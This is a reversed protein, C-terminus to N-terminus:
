RDQTPKRERQSHFIPTNYWIETRYTGISPTSTGRKKPDDNTQVNRFRKSGLYTRFSETFMKLNM